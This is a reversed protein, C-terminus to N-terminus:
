AQNQYAELITSKDFRAEIVLAYLIEKFKRGLHRERTLYLNRVLQQTLTSAGQKAGGERLNVWAARLMGSVDIGLHHKFDRDEVAQLTAILLPPADQLRVLRREEQKEGYLTAIRAPDIRASDASAGAVSLTRVRGEGVRVELRQPPTRGDLEILGRTAIVFNGGDRSYTGAQRAEGDAVFRAAALEDELAEATMPLGPRLELPQAYVRTPVQWTLRGFEAQVRKDLVWVYPALFGLGLGAIALVIPLARRLWPKWRSPPNKPLPTRRPM